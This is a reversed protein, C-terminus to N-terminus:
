DGNERKRDTATGDSHKTISRIDTKVTHIFDKFEKWADPLMKTFFIYAVYPLPVMILFVMKEIVPQGVTWLPRHSSGIFVLAVPWVVTLIFNFKKVKKRKIGRFLEEYFRYLIHPLMCMAAYFLWDAPPWGLSWFSKNFCWIFFWAIDFVLVFIAHNREM